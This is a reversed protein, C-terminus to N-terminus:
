SSDRQKPHSEELISRETLLEHSELLQSSLPNFRVSFIHQLSTGSGPKFALIFTDPSWISGIGVSICLGTRPKLWFGPFPPSPNHQNYCDQGPPHGPLNRARLQVKGCEATGISEELCTGIGTSTFTFSSFASLTRLSVSNGM